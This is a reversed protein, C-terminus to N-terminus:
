GINQEFQPRFLINATNVDRHIIKPLINATKVDRHIIKPTSGMHFYELRAPPNCSFM